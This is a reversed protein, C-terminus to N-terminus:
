NETGTVWEGGVDVVQLGSTADM